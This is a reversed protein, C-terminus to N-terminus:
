GVRANWADIVFEKPFPDRMESRRWNEDRWESLFCIETPKIPYGFVPLDDIMLVSRFFFTQM